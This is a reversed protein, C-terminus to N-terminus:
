AASLANGDGFLFKKGLQKTTVVSVLLFTRSFGMLELTVDRTSLHM